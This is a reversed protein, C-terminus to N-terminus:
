LAVENTQGAVTVEASVASVQLKFDLTLSQQVTLVVDAREATRFGTMSASGPCSWSPLLALLYRGAADTVAEREAGTGQNRATVAAGPVAAGTEDLVTGSITGVSQASVTVTASCAIAVVWAMIRFWPSTM